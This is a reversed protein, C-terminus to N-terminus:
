SQFNSVRFKSSQFKVKNAAEEDKKEQSRLSRERIEELNAESMFVGDKTSIRASSKKIPGPSQEQIEDNTLWVGEDVLKQLRNSKDFKTWMMRYLSAQGKREIMYQGLAENQHMEVGLQVWKTANEEFANQVAEGQLSYLDPSLEDIKTKSVLAIPISFPSGTKKIL